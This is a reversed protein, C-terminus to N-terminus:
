GNYDFKMCCTFKSCPVLHNRFIEHHFALRNNYNMIRVYRHSKLIRMKSRM